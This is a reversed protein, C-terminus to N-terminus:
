GDLGVCKLEGIESVTAHGVIVLGVVLDDVVQDRAERWRKKLPYAPEAQIRLPGDEDDAQGPGTSRERFLDQCTMRAHEPRTLQFESMLDEFREAGRGSPPFRRQDKQFVEVAFRRPTKGVMIQVLQGREVVRGVPDHVLHGIVRDVEAQDGCKKWM